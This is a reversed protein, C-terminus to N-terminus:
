TEKIKYIFFLINDILEIFQHILCKCFQEFLYIYAPVQGFIVDYHYDYSNSHNCDINHAYIDPLKNVKFM